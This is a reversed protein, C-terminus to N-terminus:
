AELLSGFRLNVTVGYWGADTGKGAPPVTGSLPEFFLFWYEGNSIYNSDVPLELSNNKMTPENSHLRPYCLFRVKDADELKQAQESFHSSLEDAVGLGNELLTSTLFRGASETTAKQMHILMKDGSSSKQAKPDDAGGEIPNLDSSRVVHIDGGLFRRGGELVYGKIYMLNKREYGATDKIRGAFPLYYTETWLAWPSVKDRHQVTQLYTKVATDNLLVDSAQGTTNIALDVLNSM